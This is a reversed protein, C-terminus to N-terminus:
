YCEGYDISDPDADCVCNQANDCNLGAGCNTGYCDPTGGFNCYCDPILPEAGLAMGSFPLMSLVLALIGVVALLSSGLRVAACM